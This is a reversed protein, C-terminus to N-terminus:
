DLGAFGCLQDVGRGALLEEFQVKLVAGPYLMLATVCQNLHKLLEGREGGSRRIHSDLWAEVRRNVYVVRLDPGIIRSLDGLMFLAKPYKLVHTKHRPLAEVYAKFRAEYDIRPDIDVDTRIKLKSVVYSKLETNEYKVYDIRPGTSPDYRGPDAGREMLLKAVFSTGSHNPGVVLVVM